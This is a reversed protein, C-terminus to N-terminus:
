AGRRARGAEEIHIFCVMVAERSDKALRRANDVANSWDYYFDGIQKGECVLKYITTM